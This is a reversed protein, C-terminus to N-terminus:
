ESETIFGLANKIKELDEKSTETNYNYSTLETEVKEVYGRNKGLTKLAFIICQTDEEQIKKVFKTEALDVISGRQQKCITDIRDSFIPDAKRWHYITTRNIGLKESCFLLNAGKVNELTELVQKKFEDVETQTFAKAM